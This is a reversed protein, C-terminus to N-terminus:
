GFFWTLFLVGAVIAGSWLFFQKGPPFDYFAIAAVVLVLFRAFRWLYSSPDADYTSWQNM